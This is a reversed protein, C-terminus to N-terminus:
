VVQVEWQMGPAGPVVIAERPFGYPLIYQIGRGAAVWLPGQIFPIRAPDLILAHTRPAAAPPLVLWPITEEPSYATPTAYCATGSGDRFRGVQSPAVYRLLKRGQLEAAVTTGEKVIPPVSCADTLPGEIPVRRQVAIFEWDLWTALWSSTGM